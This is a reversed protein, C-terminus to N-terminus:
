RAGLRERVLRDAEWRSAAHGTVATMFEDKGLAYLRVDSTATVTATRPVDALLALEGFGDGRGLDRVKAGEVSVSLTGDAIAYYLDGPEGARM